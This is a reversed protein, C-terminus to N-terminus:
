VGISKFIKQISQKQETALPLEIEIPNDLFQKIAKRADGRITFMVPAISGDELKTNRLVAKWLKHGSAVVLPFEFVMGEDLQAKVKGLVQALYWSRDLAWLECNNHQTDEVVSIVDNDIKTTPKFKPVVIDEGDVNLKKCVESRPVETGDKRVYKSTGKGEIVYKLENGDSDVAVGEQDKFKLPTISITGYGGLEIKKM